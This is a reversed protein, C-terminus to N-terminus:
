KFRLPSQKYTNGRSIEQNQIRRQKNRIAQNLDLKVNTPVSRYRTGSTSQSTTTIREVEDINGLGLVTRVM